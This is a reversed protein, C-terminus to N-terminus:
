TVRPMRKEFADRDFDFIDKGDPRSINAINLLHMALRSLNNRYMVMDYIQDFIEETPVAKDYLFGWIDKHNHLAHDHCTTDWGPFGNMYIECERLLMSTRLKITSLHRLSTSKEQTDTEEDDYPGIPYTTASDASAQLIVDMGAAVNEYSNQSDMVPHTAIRSLLSLSINTDLPLNQVQLGSSFGMRQYRFHSLHLIGLQVM